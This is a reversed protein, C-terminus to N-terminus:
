ILFYYQVIISIFALFSSFIALRFIRCGVDKESLPGDVL